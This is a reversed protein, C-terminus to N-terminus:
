IKHANHVVRDLIADALTPDGITDHWNEIPIQSTILTSTTNYRDELIELIDRREMDTLTAIGWDDIILLNVRALKLLLKGYSGDARAINLENFLRPARKYLTLYGDRCAKQALACALFSKGCGTPGTIIINQQKEIWDLHVLSLMLKKNLNRKIRYDIQEVSADKIKIKAVRLRYDLKRNEKFNWEQDVLLGFRDEFSLSVMDPQNIQEEIGALLGYLKMKRLKELTQELIM